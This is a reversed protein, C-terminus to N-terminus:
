MQLKSLDSRARIEEGYKYFAVPLPLFAIAIFGLLNNGWGLGLAEYMKYGFLDRPDDCRNSTSRIPPDHQLTADSFRAPDPIPFGARVPPRRVVIRRFFSFLELLLRSHRM